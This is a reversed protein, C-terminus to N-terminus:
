SRFLIAFGAASSKWCRFTSARGGSMRKFIRFILRKIEDKNSFNDILSQAYETKFIIIRAFEGKYHPYNADFREKIFEAHAQNKAFLITKGLLDGGAVSQGRTMVHQLVKDVADINFLWKNVATAEVKEPINGEDDWDKAYWEDKEEETLDNYKIGERVFKLPVSVAKTYDDPVNAAANKAESVEKRLRRIEAGLSEKDALVISLKEDKEALHAELRKLQDLTKKPITTTPLSAEDFVLQADPKKGRAYLRAFWYCFHFPEEVAQVADSQPIDRNSHVARNGLTVIVKAKSFVADGAM